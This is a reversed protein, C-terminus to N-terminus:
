HFNCAKNDYHKVSKKKLLPYTILSFFSKAVGANFYAVSDTKLRLLWHHLHSGNIEWPNVLMAAYIAMISNIEEVSAAKIVYM